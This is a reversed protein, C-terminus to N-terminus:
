QHMRTSMLLSFTFFIFQSSCFCLCYSKMGWKHSSLPKSTRYLCRASGAIWLNLYTVCLVTKILYKFIIFTCNQTSTRIVHIYVNSKKVIPFYVNKSQFTVPRSMAILYNPVSWLISILMITKEELQPFLGIRNINSHITESITIWLTM